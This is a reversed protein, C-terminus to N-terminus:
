RAVQTFKWSYLGVYNVRHMEMWREGKVHPVCAFLVTLTLAHLDFCVPRPRNYTNPSTRAASRLLKVLLSCKGVIEVLMIYKYSREELLRWRGAGTKAGGHDTEIFVLM